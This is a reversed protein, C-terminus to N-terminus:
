RSDSSVTQQWLNIIETAQNLLIIMRKKSIWPKGQLLTKLQEWADKQPWFYYPTLPITGHNPVVQDLALGISKEMWIFKLVIRPKGEVVKVVVGLKETHEDATETAEASAMASASIKRAGNRSAFSTSSNPFFFSRSKAVKSSSYGHSHHCRLHLSHLEYQAPAMAAGALSAGIM